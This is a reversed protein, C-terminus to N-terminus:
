EELHIVFPNGPPTEICLVNADFSWTGDALGEIEAIASVNALKLRVPGHAHIELILEGTGSWCAQAVTADTPEVDMLMPRRFFDRPMPQQTLARLDSGNELALGILVNATAGIRYRANVNLFLTDNTSCALRPELWARLRAVTSTDGCAVAAPYLFSATPAAPVNIMGCCDSLGPESETAATDQFLDAPIHVAALNWIARATDPNEAWPQYWLLAWGDLGSHGRPVFTGTPLHYALKIAGGGFMTRYGSLAFAEWKRREASWDGQGLGEMMRLAIQPHNNCPFFVFGPECAVGGCVNSRMQAVIGEALTLTTYHFRRDPTWEFDFGGINYRDDGTFAEYLVLLQLLHGSYMINERAVPDPMDFPDSWLLRSYEWARRELLRRICDDIIRGTLGPYAPTRMGLTAAAYGCFAAQYRISYVGLQRGGIDWVGAPDNTPLRCTISALYRQGALEPGTLPAPGLWWGPM